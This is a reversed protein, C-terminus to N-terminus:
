HWDRCSSIKHPRQPLASRSVAGENPCTNGRILLVLFAKEMIRAKMGEDMLWSYVRHWKRCQANFTHPHTHEAQPHSLLYFVKWALILSHIQDKPGVYFYQAHHHESTIGSNRLLLHPQERFSSSWSLLQIMSSWVVSLSDRLLHIIIIINRLTTGM